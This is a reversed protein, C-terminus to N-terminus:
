IQCKRLLGANNKNLYSLILDTSYITFANYSYKGKDKKPLKEEIFFIDIQHLIYLFDEDEREAVTSGHHWIADIQEMENMEKFKGLIM